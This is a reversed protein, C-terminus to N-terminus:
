ASRPMHGVPRNRLREPGRRPWGLKEAGDAVALAAAASALQILFTRRTQPAGGTQAPAPLQDEAQEQRLHQLLTKRQTPIEKRGKAM